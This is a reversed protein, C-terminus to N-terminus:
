SAHAARWSVRLCVAGLVLSLAAFGWLMALYANSGQAQAIDTLQLSDRDFLLRGPLFTVAVTEGQRTRDWLPGPVKLEHSVLLSDSEARLRGARLYEAHPTHSRTNLSLTLYYDSFGPRPLGRYNVRERDVFRKSQVTARDVMGESRLKGMRNDLDHAVVPLLLAALVLLGGIANWLSGPKDM